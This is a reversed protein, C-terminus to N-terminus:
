QGGLVRVLQAQRSVGTKRYIHKIHTRITGVRMALRGAAETPSLGRALESAVAVERPTLRYQAVLEAAGSAPQHSEIILVAAAGNAAFRGAVPSVTVAYAQQRSPREVHLHGGSSRRLGRTTEIAREIALRLAEASAPHGSRVTRDRLLLGDNAGFVARAVENMYLVRGSRDLLVIGNRGADLAAGFAMSQAQAGALAVHVDVARKLHPVLASVFSTVASDFPQHRHARQISLNLTRRPTRDITAALGYRIDHRKLFDNYFESSTLERDGVLFESTAVSGPGLLREAQRM